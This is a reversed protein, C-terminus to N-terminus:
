RGRIKQLVSTIRRPMPVAQPVVFRRLPIGFMRHIIAINVVACFLNSVLLGAAPALIGSSPLLALTVAANIALGAMVVVGGIHAKGAGNLTGNLTRTVATVGLGLALIRSADAADMYAPGILAWVIAPAFLFIVLTLASFLWLMWASSIVSQEVSAKLDDSRAVHAFMVLSVVTAIELFIENLRLAAFFMGAQDVGLSGGAIFLGVRYNMSVAFTSVAVVGAYRLMPRLAAWNLRPGDLKRLVSYGTIPVFILVSIAYAWLATALTIWGFLALAVVILTLSVRPGSESLSFRKVDGHGLLVGQMLSVFVVAAVSLVAVPVTDPGLAGVVDLNFWLVVVISLAALFPFALMQLVVIEGDSFAKSGVLYTASQKFGINGIQGALMVASTLLGYAGFGEPSLFRALIIFAIIQTARTFARTATLWLVQSLPKNM